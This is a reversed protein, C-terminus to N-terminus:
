NKGIQSVLQRTLTLDRNTGRELSQYNGDSRSTNTFESVSTNQLLPLEIKYFEQLKKKIKYRLFRRHSASIEYNGQLFKRETKSFM